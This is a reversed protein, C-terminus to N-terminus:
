AALQFELSLGALERLGADDSELALDPNWIEFAAGTGIVLAGGQIRALRRLIPSLTVKGRRDLELPEVFGFARRARAHHADPDALAEAFRRRRCDRALGPTVGRDYAVLCPDSEHRGVFILRADSRRLLTDRVFGPLTLRDEGEIACLANGM